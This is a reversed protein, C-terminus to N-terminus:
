HAIVIFVENWDSPPILCGKGARVNDAKPNGKILPYLSTLVMFIAVSLAHGCTVPRM